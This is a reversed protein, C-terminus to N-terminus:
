DVSCSLFVEVYGGGQAIWPLAFCLLFILDAHLFM